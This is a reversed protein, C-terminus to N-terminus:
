RNSSNGSAVSGSMVKVSEILTNKLPSSIRRMAMGPLWSSLSIMTCKVFDLTTCRLESTLPKLKGDTSESPSTSRKSSSTALAISSSGESTTITDPWLRLPV